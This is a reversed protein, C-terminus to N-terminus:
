VCMNMPTKNTFALLNSYLDSIYFELFICVSRCKSLHLLLTPHPSYNCCDSPTSTNVTKIGSVTEPTNVYTMSTLHYMKFIHM